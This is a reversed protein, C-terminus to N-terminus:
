RIRVAIPFDSIRLDEVVDLVLYTVENTVELLRM